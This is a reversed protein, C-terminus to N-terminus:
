SRSWSIKRPLFRSVRSGGGLTFFCETNTLKSVGAYYGLLYLNKVHSVATNQGLYEAAQQSDRDWLSFIKLNPLYFAPWLYDLGLYPKPECLDTNLITEYTEHDSFDNNQALVPWNTYYTCSKSSM